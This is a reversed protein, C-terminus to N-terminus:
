VQVEVQGDVVRAPYSRLPLTAPAGLVAGTRVDFSAGHLPCILRHGRLRGEDLKAYAHTCINQVAHVAGDKTHVILVPEDGLTVCRMSGTAVETLPLAPLYPRESLACRERPDARITQCHVLFSVPKVTEKRRIRISGDGSMMARLPFTV